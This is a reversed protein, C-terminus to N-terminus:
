FKRVPIVQTKGGGFILFLSVIIAVVAFGLLVFSAQKKDKVYGGSYKIVWQIIKPTPTQFSRTFRPFEEGEFVVKSPENDYDMIKHFNPQP